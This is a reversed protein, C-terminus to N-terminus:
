LSIVGEVKEGVEIYKSIVSEPDKMVVQISVSTYNGKSSPITQIVAGTNDFIRQITAIKATDSKVIFKFLYRSPWTSTENLQDRLKAYFADSKSQEM